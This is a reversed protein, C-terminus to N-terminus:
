RKVRRTRRTQRKASNTSCGSKTPRKASRKASNTSCGSKTPRKASRKTKRKTRRKTKNTSCGPKALRKGGYWGTEPSSPRRMLALALEKEHDNKKIQTNYETITTPSSVPSPIRPSMETVPHSISRFRNPSNGENTDSLESLSDSLSRSRSLQRGIQQKPPSANRVKGRQSITTVPKTNDFYKRKNEGFHVGKRQREAKTPKVYNKNEPKYPANGDEMNIMESSSPANRDMLFVSPPNVINSKPKPSEIDEKTNSIFISNIYNM